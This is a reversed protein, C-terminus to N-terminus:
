EEYHVWRKSLNMQAATLGVIIVFLFWAMAAAYGMNLYRFANNFLHYAYFLTSNVPGGSTMIFAPTFIQFTGILGMVLNFFIYPTLLPLTIYRFRQWPTAGDIAAAEYYTQGIGKLGALWVIMGGGASWLGMLILSWKSTAEDQLWNPGEIGIARLAGNLLGSAPNFIWIWLISAAVAPVISPLYFFTRWVAVGRVKQNLLIALALGLALGLPVGAVMFATNYLSKWFLEDGHFLTAYNQGGIVVAPNLIDFRCFSIVISFLMPGGTFVIFGIIWPLAFPAGNLLDRVPRRPAAAPQGRRGWATPRWDPRADWLYIGVGGAIVLLGYLWFFWRWNRIPRGPTPRLVQDLDAQVMATYRDLADQPARKGFIADEMAWIHANWLKQGVPTVPRYRAEELLDNFLRMADRFKPDLGANGAVYRDFAETTHGRQANQGPMFPRGQSLSVYSSARLFIRQARTSILFRTLEWAGDPERATSPIAYAWGGIWTIPKRGAALERAPMPAPAVGFNLDPGFAALNPLVWVGDVKMAVRGQIFPDLEGGQFSTQYAYVERAGGLRGYLRTMYTLAEVIRPDNLTCTRGDASMFEGGAQWGYMYLWVNGYNPIYGITRIHGAADRETMAAAMTELEEWTAPPQAAGLANTYGHRILLDKNYFLARDDVSSAIGYLGRVGTVPHTFCAEDWCAPYFAERRIPEVPGGAADGDAAGPWPPRAAPNTAVSVQWADWATRDRAVRADLPQFAGRAAWESVAYRDFLIVDPPLGGAVSVLFRTPDETQNRSANQGSIVRYVPYAPDLRHREESLREFERVVDEMAGQLPGGPGTYRIEVVGDRGGGSRAPALLWLVTLVAAAALAASVARPVRRPRHM